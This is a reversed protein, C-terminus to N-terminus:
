ISLTSPIRTARVGAWTPFLPLPIPRASTWATFPVGTTMPRPDITMDTGDDSSPVVAATLPMAGAVAAALLLDPLRPM